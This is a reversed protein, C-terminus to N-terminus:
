KNGNVDDSSDEYNDDVNERGSDVDDNDGNVDKDKGEGGRVDKNDVGEDKKDEQDGPKPPYWAADKGEPSGTVYKKTNEYFGNNSRTFNSFSDIGHLARCEVKFLDSVIPDNFRKDISIMGTPPIQGLSFLLEQLETSFRFVSVSRNDSEGEWVLRTEEENFLRFMNMTDCQRGYTFDFGDGTPPIPRPHISNIMRNVMAYYHAHNAPPHDWWVGSHYRIAMDLYSRYLIDIITRTNRVLEDVQKNKQVYFSHLDSVQSSARRTRSGARKWLRSTVKNINAQLKALKDIAEKDTTSGKLLSKLERDM